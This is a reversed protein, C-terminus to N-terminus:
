LIAEDMKENAQHILVKNVAPLAVFSKDLAAKIVLPVKNLAFEYLKRGNMKMFIDESEAQQPATSREMYLLHSYDFAHTQSSHALVGEWGGQTAELIVAGAGDGFLLSDRDYPDVVRSLTETGIILCRNADGSRHYPEYTRTCNPIFLTYSAKM